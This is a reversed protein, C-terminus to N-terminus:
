PRPSAPATATLLRSQMLTLAGLVVVAGLLARSTPVRQWILWDWLAAFIPGTNGALSVRGARDHRYAETLTLQAAVSIVGVGILAALTPLDPRVFGQILTLPAAALLAGGTFYLVVVHREEHRLARIALTAGAAFLAGVLAVIAGTGLHLQTPPIMWFVGAMLFPVTMFQAVSFREGLLPRGLLLVWVPATQMLLMSEGVSLVVLSHFFLILSFAGLIGRLLLLRRRKGLLRRPGQHGYWLLLLASAVGSRFLVVEVAPVAATAVKALAAMSAFLASAATMLLIARIPGSLQGLARM